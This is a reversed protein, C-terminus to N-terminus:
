SAALCLYCGSDRFVFVDQWSRPHVGRSKESKSGRKRENSAATMPTIRPALIRDTTTGVTTPNEAYIEELCELFHWPTRGLGLLSLSRLMRSIRLFNHNGTTLWQRTREDFNAVRVVEVDAGSGSVNLGYFQLM